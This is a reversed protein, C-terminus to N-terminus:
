RTFPAKTAGHSLWNLIEKLPIAGERVLSPPSQTADVITSGVGGQTEGGDLILDIRAGLDEAVDDARSCSPRGSLNASTGTVPSALCRILGQCVPHPSLRIGIKDTTGTLLPPLDPSARFLLTLPGPWFRKILKAADPPIEPTLGKLSNLNEILVLIPKSPDREKIAFVKEIAERQDISAGLGYFTETPFAVVGGQGLSRAASILIGEQPEAADVSL